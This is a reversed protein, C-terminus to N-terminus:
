SCPLPDSALTGIRALHEDIKEDVEETRGAALEEAAWSLAEWVCYFRARALDHARAPHPLAHVLEAVFDLGFDDMLTSLDYAPDGQSLDGFDIVGALSRDHDDVLVHHDYLDAHVLVWASRLCPEFTEALARCSEVHHAPMRPFVVREISRQDFHSPHTRSEPLQVPISSSDYAQLQGLFTALSQALRHREATSLRAKLAPLLPVGRVAEHVLLTRGTSPDKGLHIPRPIALDIADALAPLVAMETELADAAGDKAIRVIHEDGVWWAVYCEGSGAPRLEAEALEPAITRLATRVHEARVLSTCPM